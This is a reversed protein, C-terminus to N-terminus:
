VSSISGLFASSVLCFRRFTPRSVQTETTSPSTFEGSPVVICCEGFLPIKEFLMHVALWNTVAGSLAFLGIGLLLEAGLGPLLLFGLLAFLLAVLNTLLSKDM